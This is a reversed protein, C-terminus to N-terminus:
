GGLGAGAQLCLYALLAPWESVAPIRSTLAAAQEGLEPCRLSLNQPRPELSQGMRPSQTSLGEGM